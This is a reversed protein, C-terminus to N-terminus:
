STLQAKKKRKQEKELKPWIKDMKSNNFDRLAGVETESLQHATLRAQEYFQKIFEPKQSKLSDVRDM